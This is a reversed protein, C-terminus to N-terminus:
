KKEMGKMMQSMMKNMDPLEQPGSGARPPKPLGGMMKMMQSMIKNMDPLEQPSNGSPKPLDGMMKMMQSMMNNMDPLGEPSGGAGQPGGLGSMMQSMMKNMDPLGDPNGEVGAPGTMMQSMMKNMDPMGGGRMMKMMDGLGPGGSGGLVGLSNAAKLADGIVFNSKNEDIEPVDVLATSFNEDMIIREKNKEKEGMLGSFMKEINPMMNEMDPMMNEMGPIKKVVAMLLKELEIDGSNIKDAYKTSILQSLEMIKEMPNDSNNNLTSEFSVVIENIMDTTDKNVDVDLIDQIKSKFDINESISPLKMNSSKLLLLRETNPEEKLHEGYMYLTHLNTWINNKIDDTQNNLLNKLCFDAGFLSESIKQTDQNKHSFVKLKNKIFLAFNEDNFSNVFALGKSLKDEDTFTKIVNLNEKTEEYPFIFELLNLFNNYYSLYEVSSNM